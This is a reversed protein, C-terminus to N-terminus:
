STVKKSIFQSVTEIFELETPIDNDQKIKPSITNTCYYITDNFPPLEPRFMQTRRYWEEKTENSHKYLCVGNNIYKSCKEDLNCCLYNLQNISHAYSCTLMNRCKNWTGDSKKFVYKCKITYKNNM